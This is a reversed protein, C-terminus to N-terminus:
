YTATAQHARADTQSDSKNHYWATVDSTSTPVLEVMNSYSATTSAKWYAVADTDLENIILIGDEATAQVKMGTATVQTNM